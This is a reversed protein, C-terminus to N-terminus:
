MMVWLSNRSPTSSRACAMHAATGSRGSFSSYLRVKLMSNRFGIWAASVARCLLPLAHFIKCSTGREHRAARVSDADSQHARQERLAAIDGDGVDAGCGDIRRELREVIRARHAHRHVHRRPLVHRTGRVGHFRFEAHDAEQEVVGADIQKLGDVLRAVVIPVPDHADIQLTRDIADHREHRAHDARTLAAVHDIRRRHRAEKRGSSAADVVGRLERHASHGFRQPCTQRLMSDAYRHQAGAQDFGIDVRAIVDPRRAELRPGLRHIRFCYLSQGRDVFEAHFRIHDRRAHEFGHAFISEVDERVGLELVFETFHEAFNERIEAVIGDIRAVALADIKFFRAAGAVTLLASTQLLTLTRTSASSWTFM